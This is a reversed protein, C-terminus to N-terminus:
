VCVPVPLFSSQVAYLAPQLAFRRLSLSQTNTMEGPGHIRSLTWLLYSAIWSPRLERIRTVRKFFHENNRMDCYLLARVRVRARTCDSPKYIRTYGRWNTYRWSSACTVPRARARACLRHLLLNYEHGQHAATTCPGWRLNRVIMGATRAIPIMRKKPLYCAAHM